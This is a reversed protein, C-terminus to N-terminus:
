KVKNFHISDHKTTIVTASKIDIRQIKKPALKELDFFLTDPFIMYVESQFNMRDKIERGIDETSLYGTIQGDESHVKIKRLSVSYKPNRPHIFEETFFDFGQIRISVTLISDSYGTMRLNSPLNTYHIRYNITYYYERSLRVLSWIFVSIVLCVAFIYLQHRFKEGRNKRAKGILDIFGSKM